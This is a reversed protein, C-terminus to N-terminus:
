IAIDEVVPWSKACNCYTGYYFASKLETKEGLYSSAILLTKIRRFLNPNLETKSPKLKVRNLM